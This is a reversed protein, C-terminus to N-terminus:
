PPVGIDGIPSALCEKPPLPVIGLPRLSLGWPARLGYRRGKSGRAEVWPPPVESGQLRGRRGEFGPAECGAHLIKAFVSVCLCPSIILVRHRQTSHINLAFVGKTTVRTVENGCTVCQNESLISLRCRNCPYFFKHIRTRTRALSIRISKDFLVLIKNSLVLILNKM